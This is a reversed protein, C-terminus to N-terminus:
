DKPTLQISGGIDFSNGVGAESLRLPLIRKAIPGAKLSEGSEVDKGVPLPGVHVQFRKARTFAPVTKPKLTLAAKDPREAEPQCETAQGQNVFKLNVEYSGPKDFRLQQQYVGNKM